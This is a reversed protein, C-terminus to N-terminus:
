VCTQQGWHVTSGVRYGVAHGDEQESRPVGSGRSCGWLPCGPFFSAKAEVDTRRRDKASAVGCSGGACLSTLKGMNLNRVRVLSHPWVPRGVGLGHPGQENERRRWTWPELLHPSAPFATLPLGPPLAPGQTGSWGCRGSGLPLHHSSM